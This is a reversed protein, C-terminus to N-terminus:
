LYGFIPLQASAGISSIIGVIVLWKPKYYNM